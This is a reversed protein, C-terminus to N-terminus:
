QKGLWPTLLIRQIPPYNVNQTDVVVGNIKVSDREFEIEDDPIGMVRKISTHGEPSRFKIISHKSILIRNIDTAWKSKIILQHNKYTPVMSNGNIITIDTTFYITTLGILTLIGLKESLKLEYLNSERIQKKIFGEYNGDIYSIVLGNNSKLVVGGKVKSVPSFGMKEFKSTNDQHNM